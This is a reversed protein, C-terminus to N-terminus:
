LFVPGEAALVIGTAESTGVEQFAELLETLHEASLAKRKAARNM